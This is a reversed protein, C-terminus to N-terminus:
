WTLCWKIYRYASQIDEKSYYTNIDDNKIPNINKSCLQIVYKIYYVYLDGIIYIFSLVKKLEKLKSSSSKKLCLGKIEERKQLKKCETDYRLM